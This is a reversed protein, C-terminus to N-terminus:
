PLSYSLPPASKDYAERIYITTLVTFVYSQIFAVARELLILIVLVTSLLRFMTITNRCLAMLIHGATMNAALRVSLTIPRIMQSVREIIVIFQSLPLPTRLPVLHSLFHNTNNKFSFMIFRIWLPLAISLTFIIQARLTFIYPFLGATNLLLIFIFVGTLINLKGKKNQNTLTAGLEHEIRNIMNICFLQRTRISQKLLVFRAPFTLVIVMILYNSNFVRGIPDFSSFLSNIMRV